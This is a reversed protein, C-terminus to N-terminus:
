TMGSAPCALNRIALAAKGPLRALHQLVSGQQNLGGGMDASFFVGWPNGSM